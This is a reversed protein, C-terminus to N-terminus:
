ALRHWDIDRWIEDYFAVVIWNLGIWEISGAIKITKRLWNRTVTPWKSQDGLLWFHWSVRASVPAAASTISLMYHETTWCDSSKRTWNFSLLRNGPSDNSVLGFDTGTCYHRHLANPWKYAIPLETLRPLTIKVPANWTNAFGVYAMWVITM